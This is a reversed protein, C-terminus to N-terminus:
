RKRWFIQRRGDTFTQIMPELASWDTAKWGHEANLAEHDTRFRAFEDSTMPRLTFSV